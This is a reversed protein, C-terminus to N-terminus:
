NMRLNYVRKVNNLNVKIIAIDLEIDLAESTNGVMKLQNIVELAENIMRTGFRFQVMLNVLTLENLLHKPQLDNSSMFWNRLKNALITSNNSTNM